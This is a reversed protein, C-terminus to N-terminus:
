CNEVNHVGYQYNTHTTYRQCCETLNRCNSGAKWFIRLHKQMKKSNTKHCMIRFSAKIHNKIVKVIRTKIEVNEEWLRLRFSINLKIVPLLLLQKKLMNRILQKKLMNRIGIIFYRANM